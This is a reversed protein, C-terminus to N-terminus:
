QRVQTANILLSVTLTKENRFSKLSKFCVTYKNNNNNNNVVATKIETIQRSFTSIQLQVVDCCKVQLYGKNQFNLLTKKPKLKWFLSDIKVQFTLFEYSNSWFEENKDDDNLLVPLKITPSTWEVFRASLPVIQSNESEQVREPTGAAPARAPLEPTLRAAFAPHTRSSTVANKEIIPVLKYFHWKEVDGRCTKFYCNIM